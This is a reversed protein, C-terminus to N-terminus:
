KTFVLIAHLADNSFIQHIPIPRNPLLCHCHSEDCFFPSLCIQIENMNEQGYTVRIVSIRPVLIFFFVFTKKKEKRKEKKKEIKFDM